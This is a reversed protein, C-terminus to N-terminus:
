ILNMEELFARRKRQSIVIEDDNDMLVKSDSRIFSNVKNLNILHSNHVRFFNLQSLMSEFEKLNKSSLIAKGKELVCLTYKGDAECRVLNNINITEFGTSTSVSILNAGAAMEAKIKSLLAGPPKSKEEVKKVARIFDELNIPKLLYDVANVKFADLAYHNYATVFIIHFNIGKVEELLDFANGDGLEIDLFILDPKKSKIETVGSEVSNAEGIIELKPAYENIFKTMVARNLKTDDVILTRM